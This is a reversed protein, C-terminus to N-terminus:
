PQIMEEQQVCRMVYKLGMYVISVYAVMKFIEQGWHDTYMLHKM